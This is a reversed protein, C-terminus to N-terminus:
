TTPILYNLSIVMPVANVIACFSNADKTCGGPPCVASNSVHIFSLVLAFLSWFVNM